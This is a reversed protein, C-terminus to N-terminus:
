NLLSRVKQSWTRSAESVNGSDNEQNLNVTTSSGSSQETQDNSQSGGSIQDLQEDTLEVQKGPINM